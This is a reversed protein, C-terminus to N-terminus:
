VGAAIERLKAVVEDATHTNNYRCISAAAYGGGLADRVIGVAADDGPEDAADALAQMMCREGKPGHLWGKAHGEREILDAARRITEVPSM